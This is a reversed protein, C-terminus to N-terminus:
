EWELFWRLEDLPASHQYTPDSLELRFREVLAPEAERSFQPWDRYSFAKINPHHRLFAFLRLFWQEWLRDESMPKKSLPTSASLFIPYGRKVADGIFHATSRLRMDAPTYLDISWWDVYDDGPYYAAYDTHGDATASWVLAVQNLNWRERLTQALRRWARRYNEPEYGNWPNNFEYAPRLFVPRGLQSLGFCLYDIAEDLEGDGVAGAYSRNDFSLSLDVQLLVYDEHGGLLDRLPLHWDYPLSALDYAVSYFAPRTRQLSSRSAFPDFDIGTGFLIREGRPELRQLHDTRSAFTNLDDGSQMSRMQAPTCALYLLLPLLLFPLLLARFNM